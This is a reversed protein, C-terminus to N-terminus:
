NLTIYDGGRENIHIDAKTYLDNVILM